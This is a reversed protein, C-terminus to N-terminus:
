CQHLNYNVLCFTKWPLKNYCQNPNRFFDQLSWFKKYLNYDAKFSYYFWSLYQPFTELFSFLKVYMDDVEMTEVESKEKEDSSNMSLGDDKVGYVTM